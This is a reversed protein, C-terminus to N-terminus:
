VVSVFTLDVSSLFHLELMLERERQIRNVSRANSLGSRIM